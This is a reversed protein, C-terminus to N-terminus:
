SPKAVLVPGSTPTRSGGKREETVLVTDVDELGDNIGATGTGGSSVKFLSQPVAEGGRKVWVEYVRGRSLRPLGQVRLYAVERRDAPIVLSGRADPARLRDVRAAVTREAPGQFRQALGFGGAVALAIVALAAAVTALPRLAPLRPMWRRRTRRAGTAGASAASAEERVRGMLTARLRPPPSVPEPSRPLAEVAPRLLEVEERCLACDTLHAEFAEAEEESLAALLYAGADEAFVEHEGSSV